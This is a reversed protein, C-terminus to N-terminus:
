RDTPAHRDPAVAIRRLEGGDLWNVLCHECSDIVVNGPGAYVHNLMPQRCTPCDIQREGPNQRRPLATRLSGAAVARVADIIATFRDMEILTGFCRTCCILAYGELRATSLLSSCVPCVSSTESLIELHELVAAPAEHQTGCHGCVLLGRDRELGL